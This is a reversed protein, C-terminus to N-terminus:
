TSENFEFSFGCAHTFILTELMDRSTNDCSTLSYRPDATYGYALMLSSLGLTYTSPISLPIQIVRTQVRPSGKTGSENGLQKPM